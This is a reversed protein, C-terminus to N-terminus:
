REDSELRPQRGEDFMKLHTGCLYVARSREGMVSMTVLMRRDVPKNRCQGHRRGGRALPVSRGDVYASCHSPYNMRM